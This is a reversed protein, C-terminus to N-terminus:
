WPLSSFSSAMSWPACCPSSASAWCLAAPPVHPPTSPRSSIPFDAAAPQHTYLARLHSMSAAAHAAATGRPAAWARWGGCMGWWCVAMWNATWNALHAAWRFLFNMSVSLSFGASRTELTQIESPVLWTLPGWSYAFGAVFICILVLAVYTISEPLNSTNYTSFSVGLLIGVAIQWARFARRPLPRTPTLRALTPM